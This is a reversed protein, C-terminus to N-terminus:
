WLHKAAKKAKKKAKGHSMGWGLYRLIMRNSTHGSFTRLTKLDVGAEAMCCLAGRRPSRMEYTSDCTRMSTRIVNCLEEYPTLFIVNEETFSLFEDLSDAYYPVDTHVTYPSQRMTVGKGKRFLVSVGRDTFVVDQPRLQYVCFPRAATAWQLVLFHFAEVEQAAMLEQLVRLLHHKLLPTPYDVDDERAKHEVNKLMLKFELSQDIREKTTIGYLQQKAFAGMFTGMENAVTSPKVEKLREEFYVLVDEVSADQFRTLTKVHKEKTRRTLNVRGEVRGVRFNLESMDLKPFTKRKHPTTKKARKRTKREEGRVSMSTSFIPNRHYPFYYSPRTRPKNTAQKKMGHQQWKNTKNQKNQKKM